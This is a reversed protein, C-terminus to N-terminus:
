LSTPIAQGLLEELLCGTVQVEPLMQRLVGEDQCSLWLYGGDGWVVYRSLDEM